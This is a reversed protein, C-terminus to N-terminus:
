ELFKALKERTDASGMERKGFGPEAGNKMATEQHEAFNTIMMVPTASIEPRRKIEQIIELGPEGTRDMLRNILVLDFQQKELAALADTKAHARVIEAQFEGAVLRTISSHDMNCNGVDLVRKAM